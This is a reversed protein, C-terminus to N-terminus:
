TRARAGRHPARHRRTRARHFGPHPRRRDKASRHRRNSRHGLRRAAREGSRGRTSATGGIAVRRARALHGATSRKALFELTSRGALRGAPWGAILLPTDPTGALTKGNVLITATFLS